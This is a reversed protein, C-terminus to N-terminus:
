SGVSINQKSINVIANEGAKLLAKGFAPIKKRKDKGPFSENVDNLITGVHQGKYQEMEKFKSLVSIGKLMHCEHVIYEKDVVLIAIAGPRFKNREMGSFMYFGDDGKYGGVIKNISRRYYRIQILSFAYQVVLIACAIIAIKM